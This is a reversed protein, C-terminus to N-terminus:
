RGDAMIGTYVFLFASMYRIQFYMCARLYVSRLHGIIMRGWRLSKGMRPIPRV